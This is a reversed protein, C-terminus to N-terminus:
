NLCQVLNREYIHLRYLTTIRYKKKSVDTRRLTETIILYLFLVVIIDLM